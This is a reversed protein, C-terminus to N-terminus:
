GTAEIPAAQVVPRNMLGELLRTCVEPHEDLYAIVKERGQGIREDGLAFHSGSKEVLGATVALDLLEANRAIGVGYTIDFEAERFPPAVKNKVV